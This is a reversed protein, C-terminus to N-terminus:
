FFLNQFLSGLSLWKNAWLWLSKAESRPRLLLIYISPVERSIWHSLSWVALAPPRPEIGPQPILDWMGCCLGLAALYIFLFLYFTSSLSLMLWRPSNYSHALIQSGSFMYLRNSSSSLRKLWTRSETVGYVATWWAGADVPNELCSRQLPNGNRRWM